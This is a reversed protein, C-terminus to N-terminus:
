CVEVIAATKTDSTGTWAATALTEMAEKDFEGLLTAM